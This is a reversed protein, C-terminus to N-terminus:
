VAPPFLTAFLAAAVDFSLCVKAIDEKPEDGEKWGSLPCELALLLLSRISAPSSLRNRQVNM